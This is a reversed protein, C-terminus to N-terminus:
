SELAERRKLELRALQGQRDDHKAWERLLGENGSQGVVVGCLLHWAFGHQRRLARFGRGGIYPDYTRLLSV